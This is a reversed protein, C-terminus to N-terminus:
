GELFEDISNIFRANSQLDSMQLLYTADITAMAADTKGTKAAKKNPYMRMTTDYSIKVAEFNMEYLLNTEYKFRGAMVEEYLFKTPRHLTDSHQRIEVCEYKESWKEASSLANYRDYGIQMIKVGYLSELDFVYREIEEYGVTLDGCAIVWGQDIFMRYDVKELANKEDIRGEPIFVMPKAIIAGDDDVGLMVVSCNDNSIALDVGVYVARGVWDIHDVRCKRLADVPIYSETEKGQYIINCHKTIFNERLSPLEIAKKRKKIIEDWVAPMELALPNGHELIGDDTAWDKTNDPEYLLAFLSEDEVIGDLVKKAYAVYDEFPNSAKPYKTSIIFGLKNLVLLQGSQMAEVAYTDPLAGVEDAIFVTPEKGDLRNQSYNLPTYKTRTPNHLIYDRLIRFEGQEFVDLNANILPEIAEKIEKALQGDPAVSFFRSYQPETYFLLIFIVAVIFTKGNKRCIELIILQYRRRSTDDKFVTCLAAVILLWQYGGLSDYVPSGARPGKAMKLVKLVIDIKKILGRNISYKKNKGDWVSIFDRCQKIVYKPAPVKKKVAADAYLISPHNHQAPAVAKRKGPNKRAVAAKKGTSTTKRTAAAKKETSTTKRVSTKKATEKDEASKRGKKKSAAAKKPM